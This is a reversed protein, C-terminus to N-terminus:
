RHDQRRIIDKWVRIVAAMFLLIIAPIAWLKLGDNFMQAVILGSGVLIFAFLLITGPLGSILDRMNGRKSVYGAVYSSSYESSLNGRKQQSEAVV